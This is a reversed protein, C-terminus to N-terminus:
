RKKKLVLVLAVVVILALVGAGIPMLPLGKKGGEGGAAGGKDAGGPGMKGAGGAPGGPGMKGAGGGVAEGGAGMKGSMGGPGGAGMKGTGGAPGSKAADAAGGAAAAAGGAPAGSTLVTAWAAVKDKLPPKGDKAGIGSAIWKELRAPLDKAAKLRALAKGPGRRPEDPAAPLTQAFAEAMSTLSLAGSPAFRSRTSNLFFGYDAKVGKAVLEDLIAVRVEAVAVTAVPGHKLTAPDETCWTARGGPVMRAVVIRSAESGDAAFIRWVQGERLPMKLPAAAAAVASLVAVLAVVLLLGARRAFRSNRASM